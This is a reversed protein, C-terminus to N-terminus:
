RGGPCTTARGAPTGATAFEVWARHMRDALQQPPHEGLAGGLKQRRGLDLTDFVFPIQLAHCAGLRGGLVPSPWAFEDIALILWLGLRSNTLM